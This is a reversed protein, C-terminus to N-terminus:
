TLTTNLQYSLRKHNPTGRAAGRTTLNGAWPAKLTYSNAPQDPAQLMAKMLVENRHVLAEYLAEQYSAPTGQHGKTAGERAKEVAEDYITQQHAQGSLFGLVFVVLGAVALWIVKDTISQYTVVRAPRPENPPRGTPVKITNSNTM